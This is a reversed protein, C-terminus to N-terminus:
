GQPRDKPSLDLIVVCRDGSVLSGIHVDSGLFEDGGPVILGHKPIQEAPLKFGDPGTAWLFVGAIRAAPRFERELTLGNHRVHVKVTACRGRHVHCRHVIGADSLTSGPDLPQDGDELWLSVDSAPQDGPGLLDGVLGESSVEILNPSEAGATHLYIEIIHESDSELINPM